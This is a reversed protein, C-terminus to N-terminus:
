VAKKFLVEKEQQDWQKGLFKKKRSESFVHRVTHLLVKGTFFFFLIGSDGVKGQYKTVEQIM